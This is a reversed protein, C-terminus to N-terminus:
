LERRRFAWVYHHLYGPKGDAGPKIVMEEPLANPFQFAFRGDGVKTLALEVGFLKLTLKGEKILVEEDWRNPNTYVGVYKKMEDESIPLTPKPKAEDKVALPLGLEIAKEIMKRLNTGDRNALVIVAFRREPIMRLAGTYGTMSGDHWIQRLGRYSNIFQGYGYHEASSPVEARPKQMDAIVSASLIQKGDLKGDNLFAMAFRALENVSSYMTGAPWLRADNALPRVVVPLEGRRARHGVALPYTMAVTPRFTTRGMGLPQFLRESMLDAYPKATVEQAVFGALAFGSNSYSFVYDPEFLCYDDKWSRVYQGLAAEDQLGFEDPEDKLGARHSLLQGLNVRALKPSLGNAFNGIPKDLRLKGEEALTLVATATFTKTISGIQFLTDATVPARTEVNAVGFGKAFLIRDDKVIAIASGPTQTEQLEQRVVKELESFDPTQHAASALSAPHQTVLRAASPFGIALILMLAAFPQQMIRLQNVTM